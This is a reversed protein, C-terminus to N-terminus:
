RRCLAIRFHIDVGGNALRVHDILAQRHIRHKHIPKITILYTRHLHQDRIRDVRVVALMHKDRIPGDNKSFSTLDTGDSEALLATQGYDKVAHDHGVAIRDIKILKMAEILDSFFAQFVFDVVVVELDEASRDRKPTIAPAACIM